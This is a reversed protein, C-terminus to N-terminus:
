SAFLRVEAFRHREADEDLVAASCAPLDDFGAAFPSVVASGEATVSAVVADLEGALRMLLGTVAYPDLGLLRVAASAPGSISQYAALQAADAPTGGARACLAGLAVPHHPELQHLLPLDASIGAFGQSALRQLAKGLTRSTQRQAASPTRADVASDLLDWALRAFERDAGSGISCSAAAVAAVVRGVTTLRGALFAELTPLDRIRGAAVAMEVGGSHAHAGSPTRGDALLLLGASLGMLGPKKMLFPEAM